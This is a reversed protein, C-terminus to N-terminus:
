PTGHTQQVQTNINFIYRRVFVSKKEISVKELTEDKIIIKTRLHDTGVLVFVKTKKTVIEL